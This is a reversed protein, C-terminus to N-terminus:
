PGRRRALRRVRAWDGAVLAAKKAQSWGKLQLELTLAEERTPVEASWVLRVPRRVATHGRCTGDEHQAFRRELDDTHGAYYGGGRCQLLYVFFPKVRVGSSTAPVGELDRALPPRSRPTPGSAFGVPM